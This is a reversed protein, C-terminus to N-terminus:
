YQHFSFLKSSRVCFLEFSSNTACGLSQRTVWHRAPEAQPKAIEGIDFRVWERPLAEFVTCELASGQFSTSARHRRLRANM